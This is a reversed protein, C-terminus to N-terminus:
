PTGPTPGRYVGGLRLVLRPPEQQINNVEWLAGAYRVYKIAFLHDNAYGDAVISIANSLTVDPNIGEESVRRGPYLIDGFYNKELIKDEWVGPKTEVQEGTNYGVAGYFKKSAM